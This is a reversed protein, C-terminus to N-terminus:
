GDQVEWFPGASPDYVKTVGRSTYVIRGDVREGNAYIGPPQRIRWRQLLNRLRAM